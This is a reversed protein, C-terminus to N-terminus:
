KSKYKASLASFTHSLSSALKSYDSVSVVEDGISQMVEEPVGRGVGVAIIHCKTQRRLSRLANEYGGCQGDTQFIVIFKGLPNGESNKRGREQWEQEIASFAVSFNTGRNMFKMKRTERKVDEFSHTLPCEVEADNAFQILGVQCLSFNVEKVVANVSKRALEFDDHGVSYSGDLCIVIDLLVSRDIPSDFHLKPVKHNQYLDLPARLDLGCNIRYDLGLIWVTANRIYRDTGAGKKTGFEVWLKTFGTDVIIRGAGKPLTGQMKQCIDDEPTGYFLCGKPSADSSSAFQVLKGKPDAYCITTGEFLSNLSGTIPNEQFAGNKRGTGKKGKKGEKEHKDCFIRKKSAHIRLYCESAQCVTYNSHVLEGEGGLLGTLKAGAIRALVCNAHDVLPAEEGFILLGRGAAHFRQVVDGFRTWDQVSLNGDRLLWDVSNSSIIFAAHYRAPLCEEMFDKENYVHKVKLGLGRSLEKRVIEEFKSKYLSEFNDYTYFCGILLSFEGFAGGVGLDFRTKDTPNTGKLPDEDSGEQIRETSNAMTLETYYKLIQASKANVDDGFMRKLYRMRFKIREQQGENASWEESLAGERESCRNALLEATNERFKCRKGLDKLRSVEAELIAGKLMEQLDEDRKSPVVIEGPSYLVLHQWDLGLSNVQMRLVRSGLDFGTPFSPEAEFIPSGPPARQGHRRWIPHGKLATLASESSEMLDSLSTLLHGERPAWEGGRVSTSMCHCIHFATIYPVHQDVSIHCGFALLPQFAFGWLSALLDSCEQFSILDCDFNYLITNSSDVLIRKIGESAAESPYRKVTFKSAWLLVRLQNAEPPVSGMELTIRWAASYFPADVTAIGNDSLVDDGDCYAVVDRWLSPKGREILVCLNKPDVASLCASPDPAASVLEEFAAVDTIFRVKWVKRVSKWDIAYGKQFSQKMWKLQTYDGPRSFSEGLWPSCLDSSIQVVLPFGPQDIVKLKFLPGLNPCVESPCKEYVSWVWACLRALPHSDFAKPLARLFAPYSKLTATEKLCSARVLVRFPSTSATSASLNRNHWLDQFMQCLHMSYELSTIGGLSPMKENLIKALELHDGVAKQILPVIRMSLIEEGFLARASRAWVETWAKIRPDVGKCMHEHIYNRTLCVPWIEIYQEIGPQRLESMLMQDFSDVRNAILLVTIGDGARSSIWRFLTRKHNKSLFHYEDAVLLGKKVDQPMMERLSGLLSQVVLKDDSCDIDGVHYGKAEFTTRLINDVTYTKGAGPPSQLLIVCERKGKLLEKGLDEYWNREVNVGCVSELLLGANLAPGMDLPNPNPWYASIIALPDSSDTKRRKSYDIRNIDMRSASKGLRWETLTPPSFLHVFSRDRTEAFNYTPDASEIFIYRWPYHKTHEALWKAFLDEIQSLGRVYVFCTLADFRSIVRLYQEDVSLSGSLSAVHLDLVEVPLNLRRMEVLTHSDVFYLSFCAPPSRIRTYLEVDAPVPFSGLLIRRLKELPCSQGISHLVIRVALPALFLYPFWSSKAKLPKMGALMFIREKFKDELPSLVVQSLWRCFLYFQSRELQQPLVHLPILVSIIPSSEARLTLRRAVSVHAIPVSNVDLLSHVQFPFEAAHGHGCIRFPFVELGAEDSIVAEILKRPSPSDAGGKAWSLNAKVSHIHQRFTEQNTARLLKETIILAVPGAAQILRSLESAFPFDVVNSLVNLKSSADDLLSRALNEVNIVKKQAELCKIFVRALSQAVNQMERYDAHGPVLDLFYKNICSEGVKATNMHAKLKSWSGTYTCGLCSRSERVKLYTLTDRLLLLLAEVKNFHLPELLNLGALHAIGLIRWFPIVEAEEESPPASTQSLIPVWLRGRAEKKLLIAELRIVSLPELAADLMEWASANTSFVLEVQEGSDAKTNVNRYRFVGTQTKVLMGDLGPKVRITAFPLAASGECVVLLETADLFVPGDFMRDESAVVVDGSVGALRRVSRQPSAVNPSGAKDVLPQSRGLHPAFRSDEEFSEVLVERPEFESEWVWSDDPMCNLKRLSLNEQSASREYEILAEKSFTVSSAPFGEQRMWVLEQYTAACFVELIEKVGKVMEQCLVHLPQSKGGLLPMVLARGLIALRTKDWKKKKKVVRLFTRLVLLGVGKNQIALCIQRLTWLFPDLVKELDRTNWSGSSSKKLNGLADSVPGKAFEEVVPEWEADKCIRIKHITAFGALLQRTYIKDARGKGGFSSLSADSNLLFTEMRGPMPCLVPGVFDPRWKADQLFSAIPDSLAKCKKLLEPLPLGAAAFFCRLLYKLVGDTTARNSKIREDLVGEKWLAFLSVFASLNREVISLSVGSEVDMLGFINLYFFEGKERIPTLNLPQKLLWDKFSSPVARAGASIQYARAPQVSQALQFTSVSVPPLKLRDNFDNLISTHLYGPAAIFVALASSTRLHRVVLARFHEDARLRLLYNEWDGSAPYEEPLVVHPCKEWLRYVVEQKTKPLELCKVLLDEEVGDECYSLLEADASNAFRNMLTPDCNFPIKGASESLALRENKLVFAAIWGFYSPNKCRDSFSGDQLLKQVFIGVLLSRPASGEELALELIFLFKEFPLALLTATLIERQDDSQARILFFAFSEDSCLNEPFVRSSIKMASDTEGKAWKGVPLILQHKGLACDRRLVERHLCFEWFARGLPQKAKTLRPFIGSFAAPPLSLLNSRLSAQDFLVRAPRDLRFLLTLLLGCAESDVDHAPVSIPLNEDLLFQIDEESVEIEDSLKKTVIIWALVAVRARGVESLNTRRALMHAQVMKERVTANLNARSAPAFCFFLSKAGMSLLFKLPFAYFKICTLVVDLSHPFVQAWDKWCREWDLEESQTCQEVLLLEEDVSSQKTFCEYSEEKSAKKGECLFPILHMSHTGAGAPLMAILRVVQPDEGLVVRLWLEVRNRQTLAQCDSCESVFLHFSANPLRLSQSEFGKVLAELIASLVPNGVINKTKGQLFAQMGTLQELLTKDGRLRAAWREALDQTSIDEGRDAPGLVMHRVRDQISKAPSFTQLVHAEEQMGELTLTTFSPHLIPSVMIVGCGCDVAQKFFFARQASSILNSQVFVVVTGRRHARSLKEFLNQMMIDLNDSGCFVLEVNAGDDRYYQGVNLHPEAVLLLFKGSTEKQEMRWKKELVKWDQRAKLSSELKACIEDLGTPTRLSMRQDKQYFLLQRQITGSGNRSVVHLEDKRGLLDFSAELGEREILFLRVSQASVVELLRQYYIPPLADIFRVVFFSLCSSGRLMRLRRLFAQFNSQEVAVDTLPVRALERILKRAQKVADGEKILALSYRAGLLARVSVKAVRVSEQDREDVGLVQSLQPNCRASIIPFHDERAKPSLFHLATLWKDLLHSESSADSLLSSMQVSEGLTAASEAIGVISPASLSNIEVSSTEADRKVLLALRFCLVDNIFAQGLPVVGVSFWYQSDVQCQWTSGALNLDAVLGDCEFQLKCSGVTTGRNPTFGALVAPFNKAEEGGKSGSQLTFTERLGISPAEEQLFSLLQECPIGAELLICGTGHREIRHQQCKICSNRLVIYPATSTVVATSSSPASFMRCNLEFAAQFSSTVERVSEDYAELNSFYRELVQAYDEDMIDEDMIDVKKELNKLVKCLAERRDWEMRDRLYTSIVSAVSSSTAMEQWEEEDFAEEIEKSYQPHGSEDRVLTMNEECKLMEDVNWGALRKRSDELVGRRYLRDQHVRRLAQYTIVPHVEYSKLIVERADGKPLGNLWSADNGAEYDGLHFGLDKNVSMLLQLKAKPLLASAPRFHDVIKLLDGYTSCSNLVNARLCDFRAKQLSAGEEQAVPLDKDQDNPDTLLDRDLPALLSCTEWVKARSKSSLADEPTCAQLLAWNSVLEEVSSRAGVRLGFVKLTARIQQLTIDKGFLEESSLKEPVEGEDEDPGEDANDVISNFWSFSCSSCLSFFIFSIIFFFPFFVLFFSFPRTSKRGVM